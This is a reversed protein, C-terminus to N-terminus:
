LVTIEMPLAWDRVAPKGPQDSTQPMPGGNAM